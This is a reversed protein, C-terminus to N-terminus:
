QTHRPIPHILRSAPRKKLTPPRQSAVNLHLHHDDSPRSISRILRRDSPHSKPHPHNSPWSTPTCTITVVPVRNRIFSLAQRDTQQTCTSAAVARCQSAPPSSEQSAFNPLHHSDSPRSKSHILPGAPRETANCATARQPTVHVRDPSTVLDSPRSQSYVPPGAPRETLHLRSPGNVVRSAPQTRSRGTLQEKSALQSTVHSCVYCPHLHSPGDAVRQICTPHMFFRDTM